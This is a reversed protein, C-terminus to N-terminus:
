RCWESQFKGVPCGDPRSDNWRQILMDRHTSWFKRIIKLQKGTFASGDVVSCDCISFSMGEGDKMVHFHPPPHEEFYMGVTFSRSFAHIHFKTHFEDAVRLDRQLDNVETGLIECRFSSPSNM